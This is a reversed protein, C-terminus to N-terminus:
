DTFATANAGIAAASTEVVAAREAGSAKTVSWSGCTLNDQHFVHDVGVFSHEKDMLIESWNFCSHLIFM